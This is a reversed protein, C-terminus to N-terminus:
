NYIKTKLNATVLLTFSVQLSIVFMWNKFDLYEFDINLSSLLFHTFVLTAVFFCNITVFTVYLYRHLVVPEEDLRNIIFAEFYQSKIYLDNLYINYIKSFFFMNFCFILSYGFMVYGLMRVLFKSNNTESVIEEIYVSWSFFLVLVSLVSFIVYFFKLYFKTKVFQYKSDTM